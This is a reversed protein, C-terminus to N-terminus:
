GQTNFDQIISKYQYKKDFSTVAYELNSDLNKFVFEGETNSRTTGVLLGSSKDYIFLQVSVPSDEETVLGRLDLTNQLRLNVSFSYSSSIEFILRDQEGKDPFGYEKPYYLPLFGTIKLDRDEEHKFIKISDELYSNTTLLEQFGDPDESILNLDVGLMKFVSSEEFSKEFVREVLFETDVANLVSTLDEDSLFRDFMGYAVIDGEPEWGGSSSGIMKFTNSRPFLNSAGVITPSLELTGYSTTLIGRNTNLDLRLIVTDFVIGFNGARSLPYFGLDSGVTDTFGSFRWLNDYASNNQTFSLGYFSQANEAECLFKSQSKLRVKLIFTMEKTNPYQMLRNFVLNSKPLSLTKYKFSKEAVLPKFNKVGWASVEKHSLGSTNVTKLTLYDSPINSFYVRERDKSLVSNSDLAFICNVGPIDYWAM